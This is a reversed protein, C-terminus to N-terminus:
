GLGKLGDVVTEKVISFDTNPESVHFWPAYGFGIAALGIAGAVLLMAPVRDRFNSSVHEVFGMPRTYDETRM